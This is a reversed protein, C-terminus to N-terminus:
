PRVAAHAADTLMPAHFVRLAMALGLAWGIERIDALGAPFKVVTGVPAKHLENREWQIRVILGLFLALNLGSLPTLHVSKPTSYAVELDQLLFHDSFANM